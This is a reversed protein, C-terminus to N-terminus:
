IDFWSMIEIFLLLVSFHFMGAPKEEQTTEAPKEEEKKDAPKNTAQAGGDSKSGSCGM